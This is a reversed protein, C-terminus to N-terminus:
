STEWAGGVEQVTLKPSNDNIGISTIHSEVAYDILEESLHTQEILLPSTSDSSVTEWYESSEQIVRRIGEAIDLFAKDRNQWETVAKGNAPLAQVKSFPADKWSVPRLIIPIVCCAGADHRMLAQKVEISDCYDSALFDPSILLLIINAKDLSKNIEFEWEKGPM